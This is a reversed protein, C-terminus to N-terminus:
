LDMYLSLSLSRSRLLKELGYFSRNGANIMAAIEKEIENRATLFSGLYKFHTSSDFIIYKTVKLNPKITTQSLKTTGADQWRIEQL